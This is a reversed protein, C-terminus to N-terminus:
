NGWDLLKTLADGTKKVDVNAPTNLAKSVENAALSLAQMQLQQTLNGRIYDYVTVNTEPQVLDSIALMKADYKKIVKLARYDAETEQIDSVFGEKQAFLVLLNNYPMGLQYAFQETKQILINGAQYGSNPNNAQIEMQEPSMKNDALKNRLENLKIRADESNTGKPVIVLFMKMMDNWVFSTKNSEYFQRIQEDTAAVSQLEKQKQSVVYQQAILQNKLFAKYEVVNMGTQTQLLQDLSVGQAKFVLENLEKETVQAGVQQSMNTLFYQDVTSDPINIGAKAAAQLVLKEEVLADLVQKREDVTLKKGIQKEYTECRSKLQKVTISESKNHKVVALVQLDSSQAFLAASTALLAIFALAIKKM